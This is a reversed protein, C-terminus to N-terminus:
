SMLSTKPRKATSKWPFWPNKPLQVKSNKIKAEVKPQVKGEVLEQYSRKAEFASKQYSQHHADGFAKSFVIAVTTFLDSFSTWM